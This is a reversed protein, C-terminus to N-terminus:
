SYNSHCENEEPGQIIEKSNGVLNLVDLRTENNTEKTEITKTKKKGHFKYTWTHVYTYYPSFKM